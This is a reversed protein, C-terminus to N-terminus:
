RNSAFQSTGNELRREMRILRDEILDLKEMIKEQGEHQGVNKSFNMLGIMTNFLTIPNFIDQEPNPM